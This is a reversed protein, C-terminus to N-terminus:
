RRRTPRRRREGCGQCVAHCAGHKLGARDPAGAPIPQGPISVLGDRTCIVIASLPARAAVAAPLWLQQVLAAAALWGTM